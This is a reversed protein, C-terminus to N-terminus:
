YSQNLVRARYRLEIRRTPWEKTEIEYIAHASKWSVSEALWEEIDGSKTVAVIKYNYDRPPM